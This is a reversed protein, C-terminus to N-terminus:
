TGGKRRHGGGAWNAGPVPWMGAGTAAGTGGNIGLTAVAVVLGATLM